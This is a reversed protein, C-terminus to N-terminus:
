KFRYSLGVSFDYGGGEPVAYSVDLGVPYRNPRLGFGFTFANRSTFGDGGSPVTTFGVRLPVRGQEIGVSYEIGAGFLTQTGRDFYQSSDGGFFSQVQGGILLYDKGGRYGEKRWTAGAILRGPITDYERETEGNGSLDIPSRFSLGLTWDPKSPPTYLAGVLVGVGTGTSSGNNDIAFAPNTGDNAIAQESFEIKQQAFVLGVGYSLSSNVAKGYSVNYFSAKAKRRLTYNTLSLPDDDLSTATATDDIYGGVTYSIGLTGSGRGFLQSIPTAFGLHTVSQSGGRGDTRGNPDSRDGSLFTRSEPLNRYTLGVARTDLYALAAPNYYTSYTDVNTAANAGGTAMARGGADLANLLDPVQAAAPAAILATGALVLALRSTSNM